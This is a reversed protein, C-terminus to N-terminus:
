KIGLAYSKLGKVKRKKISIPMKKYLVRLARKKNMTRIGQSTDQKKRSKVPLETSLNKGIYNFSALLPESRFLKNVDDEIDFDWWALAHWGAQQYIAFKFADSNITNPMSHWYAGQVEIIIKQDPLVFDVQFEKVLAIEPIRFTFENLFYFRIGRRVLQEYVMKEPRTGHVAPYPDVWRKYGLVRMTKARRIKEETKLRNPNYRVYRPM